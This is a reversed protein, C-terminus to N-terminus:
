AVEGFSDTDVAVPTVTSERIDLGVVRVTGSLGNPYVPVVPDSLSGDDLRYRPSGIRYAIDDGLWWDRGLMPASSRDAELAVTVAGDYMIMVARQAWSLLISTDTISSSPSWAYEFWPRGQLDAAVVPGSTPAASGQGSSYATVRNAGKGASYDETMVADTLCGPMEWVTAPSLGDRPSSGLRDAVKLTPLISTHADDWDWDMTWEPGGDVSMLQQLRAYVTTHDSLAYARDRSTGDGSYSVTIPLGPTTPTDKVFSTVLDDVILNQGESYTKDGVYRRDLYGEGSILSLQIENTTPKRQRRNVIGSWLPRMNPDDSDYVHIASAGHLTAREWSPSTTRDINLTMTATSYAGLVRSLPWQPVLGPLDALVRGTRLDAALFQLTM